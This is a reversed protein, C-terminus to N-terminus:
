RSVVMGAVAGAVVVVLLGVGALAYRRDNVHWWDGVLWAVRVLPWGILVIMMAGVALNRVLDVPVLTLTAVVVAALWASEARDRQLRRRARV